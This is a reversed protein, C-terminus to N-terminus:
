WAPFRSHDWKISSVDAVVVVVCESFIELCQFICLYCLFFCLCAAFLGVNELMKVVLSFEVPHLNM